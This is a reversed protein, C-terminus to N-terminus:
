ITFQVHMGFVPYKLENMFFQFYLHKFLLVNAGINFDRSDYEAIINLEKLFSPSFSVGGSIPFKQMVHVSVPINYAAHLGLSNEGFNFHKTLAIYHTGFYKNGQAYSVLSATSIVDNSGIVVSPWYKGEKLPRLRLSISRDVNSFYGANWLDFATNNMSVEVFSLFTINIFFNFTHYDWTDTTFQKPLFNGGIKVTKDPSMEATPSNLLGTVGLTTQANIFSSTLLLVVAGLMLKSISRNLRM